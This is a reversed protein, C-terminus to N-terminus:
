VFIAELTFNYIVTAFQYIALFWYNVNFNCSGGFQNIAANTFKLFKYKSHLRRPWYGWCRCDKKLFIYLIRSIHLMEHPSLPLM